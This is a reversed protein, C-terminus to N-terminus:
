WFVARCVKNIKYDRGPLVWQFILNHYISTLHLFSLFSLFEVFFYGKCVMRNCSASFRHFFPVLWSIKIQHVPLVSLQALLMTQLVRFSSFFLCHNCLWQTFCLDGLEMKTILSIWWELLCIWGFNNYDCILM